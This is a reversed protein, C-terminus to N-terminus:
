IILKVKKNEIARIFCPCRNDRASHSTNYNSLKINNAYNVCNICKKNIAKCDKGDHKESCIACIVEKKCQAIVHNFGWCNYCRTVHVYEVIKYKSWGINIGGKSMIEKYIISDAEIVISVDKYKESKRRNLIKMTDIRAYTGLGNQNKIMSLLEEENLSGEQLDVRLIKFTSRKIMPTHVKYCDGLGKSLNTKLM